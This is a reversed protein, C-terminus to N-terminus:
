SEVCPLSGGQILLKQEVSNLQKRGHMDGAEQFYFHFYDKSCSRTSRDRTLVPCLRNVHIVERVPDVFFVASYFLAALWGPIYSDCFLARLGAPLKEGIHGKLFELRMVRCLLGIAVGILLSVVLEPAAFLFMVDAQLLPTDDEDLPLDLAAVASGLLTLLLVLLTGWLILTSIRNKNAPAEAPFLFRFYGLVCSFLACRFGQWLFFLVRWRALSSAEIFNTHLHSSIILSM